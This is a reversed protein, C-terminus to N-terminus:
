NHFLGEQLVQLFLLLAITLLVSVVSILTIKGMDLDERYAM